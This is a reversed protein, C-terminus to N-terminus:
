AVRSSAGGLSASSESAANVRRGARRPLRPHDQPKHMRRRDGRQDARRGIGVADLVARDVGGLLQHLRAVQDGLLLIRDVQQAGFVGMKGTGVTDLLQGVGLEAHLRQRQRLDGVTASNGSAWGFTSEIPRVSSDSPKLLSLSVGAASAPPAVGGTLHAHGLSFSARAPLRRLAAPALPRDAAGDGRM